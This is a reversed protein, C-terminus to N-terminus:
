TMILQNEAAQYAALITQAPAWFLATTRAWDVNTSDIQLQNWSEFKLAVFAM